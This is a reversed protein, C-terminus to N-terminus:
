SARPPGPAGTPPPPKGHIIGPGRAPTGGGRSRCTRGFTALAADSHSPTYGSSAPDDVPSIGTGTRTWRGPRCSEVPESGPTHDASRRHTYKRGRVLDRSRRIVRDRGNRMGRVGPSPWGARLRGRGGATHPLRRLRVRDPPHTGPRTEHVAAFTRGRIFDSVLRSAAKRPPPRFSTRSGSLRASGGQQVRSLVVRFVCPM